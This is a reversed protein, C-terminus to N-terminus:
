TEADSNPEAAPAEVEPGASLPQTQPTELYVPFRGLMTGYVLHGLVTSQQVHLLFILPSVAKWLVRFSFYYWVVAFCVSALLIHRRSLRDRVVM